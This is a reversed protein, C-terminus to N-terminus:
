LNAGLVMFLLAFLLLLAQIGSSAMLRKQLAAAEPTPGSGQAPPSQSMSAWLKHNTPRIIVWGVIYAVLALIIGVGLWPTGASTPALSTAVQTIYAYLILGAAIAITANRINYREFAPGIIKMFEMKTPGSLKSMMPGLISVSLVAAGMWLIVGGIHLFLLVLFVVDTL